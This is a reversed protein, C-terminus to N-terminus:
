WWREMSQGYIALPIALAAAFVLWTRIRFQLWRRATKRQPCNTEEM